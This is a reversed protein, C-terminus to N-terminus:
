AGLGDAITADKQFPHKHGRGEQRHRGLHDQSAAEAGLKGETEQGIFAHAVIDHVVHGALRREALADQRLVIHFQYKADDDHTSCVEASM